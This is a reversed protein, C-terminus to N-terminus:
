LRILQLGSLYGFVTIYIRTKTPANLDFVVYNGNEVFEPLSTTVLTKSQPYSNALAVQFTSTNPPTGNNAYLYLKYNGRPVGVLCFRNIEPAGSLDYGGIWTGLMSDWSVSNGATMAQNALRLLVVPSQKELYDKLCLVPSNNFTSFQLNAFQEGSGFWYGYVNFPGYSCETAPNAVLSNTSIVNWYDTNTFGTAAWGQKDGTGNFDLNLLFRRNAGSFWTLGNYYLANLGQSLTRLLKDPGYRLFGGFRPVVDPNLVKWVPNIKIPNLPQGNVEVRVFLQNSMPAGLVQGRDVFQGLTVQVSSLGGIVSVIGYGHDLTVHYVISSAIAPNRTSWDPPGVRIRVVRGTGPSTALEADPVELTLGYNLEGETTFPVLLRAHRAVPPRLESLIIQSEESINLTGM